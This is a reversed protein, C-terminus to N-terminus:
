SYLVDGPHDSDKAADGALAVAKPGGTEAVVPERGTATL